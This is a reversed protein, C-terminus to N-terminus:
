LVSFTTTGDLIIRAGGLVKVDCGEGVTFTKGNSDDNIKVRNEFVVLGNRMFFGDSVNVALGYNDGIDINCGNFHIIGETEQTISAPYGMSFTTGVDMILRAGKNIKLYGNPCLTHGSGTVFVDGYIDLDCDAVFDGDM